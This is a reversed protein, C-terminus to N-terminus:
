GKRWNEPNEIIYREIKLYEDNARILHDHYGPQWVTNIGLNKRAFKTVGIKFGRIISPINKSQPGLRAQSPLPKTHQSPLSVLDQTEVDLNRDINVIGHIHDPMVIFEGLRVFPFHHPIKKWCKKACLGLSSLHMKQNKIEGFFCEKQWTCITIFYSGNAGYDHFPLRASKVRYRDHFLDTM